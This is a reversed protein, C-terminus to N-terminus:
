QLSFPCHVPARQHTGYTIPAGGEAKGAALQGNAEGRKGM